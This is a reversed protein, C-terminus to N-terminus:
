GFKEKLKAYQVREAGEQKEAALAKAEKVAKNLARRAKANAKLEEPTYFYDYSIRVELHCSDYGYSEAGINLTAEPGYKAILREMGELHDALSGYTVHESPNEETKYVSKYNPRAM